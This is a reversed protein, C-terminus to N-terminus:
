RSANAARHHGAAARRNAGRASQAVAIRRRDEGDFVSRRPSGFKARPASPASCIPRSRMPRIAPNSRRCSSRRCAKRTSWSIRSCRSPMRREARASQRLTLLRTLNAYAARDKPYAIVDPTGDRFVLRAGVILRVHRGEGERMESEHARAGRGGAHQPRRHRHRRAWARRGAGGDGGSALGCRLFSFNTTVCLEAFDSM